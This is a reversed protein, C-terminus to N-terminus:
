SMRRTLLPGTPTVSASASDFVIRMPDLPPALFTTMFIREIFTDNLSKYHCSSLHGITDALGTDRFRARRPLHHRGAPGVTPPMTMASPVPARRDAARSSAAPLPPISRDDSM